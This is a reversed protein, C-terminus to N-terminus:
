PRTVGAGSITFAAGSTNASLTFASAGPNFVISNVETVASFFLSTQASGNFSAIDSPGNPVTNPTWNSAINWNGSGANANWTASDAYSIQALLFTTALTAMVVKTFMHSLGLYAHINSKRTTTYM